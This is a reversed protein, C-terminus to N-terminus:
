STVCCRKVQVYPDGKAIVNTQKTLLGGAVAYITIVTSLAILSFKTKLSM